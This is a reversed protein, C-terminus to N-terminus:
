LRPISQDLSWCSGGEDSSPVGMEQRILLLPDADGEAGAESATDGLLRPYRALFQQLLAESDYPQERLEKLTGDEQIVFIGAAM